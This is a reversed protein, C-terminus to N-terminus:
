RALQTLDRSFRELMRYKGESTPDTVRAGGRIEPIVQLIKDRTLGLDNLLRGASGDRDSALALLLHETSVYDDKLRNAEENAIDVIRKVRPTIYVQAQGGSSYPYYMKPNQQLIEDLRQRLMDADVNVRELINQVAGGTQEILAVLLHEADLQSHRYRQIIEHARAFADQARETFRDFRMM